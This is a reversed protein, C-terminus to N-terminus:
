VLELLDGPRMHPRACVPLERGSATLNIQLLLLLITFYFIIFLVHHKNILYNMWVDYNGANTESESSSSDDPLYTEETETVKTACATSARGRGRGRRGGCGCENYVGRIVVSKRWETLGSTEVYFVAESANIMAWYFIMNVKYEGDVHAIHALNDDNRLWEGM